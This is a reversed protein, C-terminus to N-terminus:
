RRHPHCGLTVIGATRRRRQHLQDLLEDRRSKSAIPQHDVLERGGREVPETRRNQAIRGFAVGLPHERHGQHAAEFM